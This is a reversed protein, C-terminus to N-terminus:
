AARKFVARTPAAPEYRTIVTGKKTARVHIEGRQQARDLTVKVANHRVGLQEAVRRLRKLM